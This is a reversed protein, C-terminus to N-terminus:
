LIVIQTYKQTKPSLNDSLVFSSFFSDYYSSVLLPLFPSYETANLNLQITHSSSSIFGFFFNFMELSLGLSSSCSNYSFCLFIIDNITNPKITRITISFIAIWTTKKSTIREIKIFNDSRIFKTLKQEQGISMTEKPWQLHIFALWFSLFERFM